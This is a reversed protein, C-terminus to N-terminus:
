RQVVVKEEQQLVVDVTPVLLVPIRSWTVVSLLMMMEGM